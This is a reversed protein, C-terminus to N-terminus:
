LVLSGPDCKITQGDVADGALVFACCGMQMGLTCNVWRDVEGWCPIIGDGNRSELPSVQGFCLAALSSSLLMFTAFKKMAISCCEQQLVM